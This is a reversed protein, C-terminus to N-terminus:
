CSGQCGLQLLKMGALDFRKVLGQAASGLSWTFPKGRFHIPKVATPSGVGNFPTWFGEIGPTLIRDDLFSAERIKTESLRVFLVSDTLTEYKLSLFGPDIAGFTRRQAVKEM